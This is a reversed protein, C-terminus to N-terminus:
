RITSKYLKDALARVTADPDKQALDRYTAVHRRITDKAETQQELLVQLSRQRVKVDADKLGREILVQVAAPHHLEELARLALGREPAPSEPTLHLRLQAAADTGQIKKLARRVEDLVAPDPNPRGLEEALPWTASPLALAGLGIVARVRVRTSRDTKVVRALLEAAPEGGAESILELAALRAEESESQLVPELAAPQSKVLGMLLPRGEGLAWKPGLGDMLRRAGDPPGKGTLMLARLVVLEPGDRPLQKLLAAARAEAGPAAAGSDPRGLLEILCLWTSDRSWELAAILEADPPTSQRLSTLLAQHIPDLAAGPPSADQIAKLLRLRAAPDSESWGKEQWLQFARERAKLVPERSIVAEVAAVAGAGLGDLARQLHQAHLAADAMPDQLEVLLLQQGALPERAQRKMEEPGVVARRFLGSFEEMANPFLPLVFFRLAAGIGALVLLLIFVAKILRLAGAGRRRALDVKPAEGQKEAQTIAMALAQRSLRKPQGEDGTDGADMRRTPGETEGPEEGARPRPNAGTRRRPPASGVGAAGERRWAAGAADADNAVDMLASWRATEGGGGAGKPPGSGPQWLRTPPEPSSAPAEEIRATPMASRPVRGVDSRPPGGAPAAAPADGEAVADWDAEGEAVKALRPADRKVAQQLLAVLLHLQNESPDRTPSCWASRVVLARNSERFAYGVGARHGNLYHLSLDLEPTLEDIPHCLLSEARVLRENEDVWVHAKFEPGDGGPATALIAGKDEGLTLGQAELGRTVADKLSGM